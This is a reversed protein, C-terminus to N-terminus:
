STVNRLSCSSLLRAPAKRVARKTQDRWKTDVQEKREQKKKIKRSNLNKEGGEPNNTTIGAEHQTNDPTFQQFYV